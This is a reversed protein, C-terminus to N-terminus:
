VKARIEEPLISMTNNVCMVLTSLDKFQPVSEIWDLLETANAVAFNVGEYEKKNACYSVFEPNIDVGMKTVNEPVNLNGIVQGTGCGVELVFRIDNESVVENIKNTTAEYLSLFFGETISKEWQYPQLETWLKQELDEDVSVQRTHNEQKAVPKPDDNQHGRFDDEVM